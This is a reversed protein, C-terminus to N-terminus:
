LSSTLTHILFLPTPGRSLRSNFFVPFAFLSKFLHMYLCVEACSADGRPVNRHYNTHYIFLFPSLAAIVGKHSIGMVALKKRMGIDDLHCTCVDSLGDLGMVAPMTQKNITTSSTQIVCICHFYQTTFMQPNKKEHTCWVHESSRSLSYSLHRERELCM